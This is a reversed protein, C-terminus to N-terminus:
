QGAGMLVSQIRSRLSSLSIQYDSDTVPQGAANLMPETAAARMLIVQGSSNSAARFLGQSFGIIQTLGSKGTWLFFVYDQGDVLEPAGAFIQRSGNAVGGMVALDVTTGATGKFTSTVQV